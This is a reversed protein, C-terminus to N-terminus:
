LGTADACTLQAGTQCPPKRLYIVPDVGSQGTAIFTLDKTQSLTISYVLDNGLGTPFLCTGGTESRYDNGADTTDSVFTVGGAGSFTGGGGGTGGDVTQPREGCSCGSLALGLALAVALAPRQSMARMM